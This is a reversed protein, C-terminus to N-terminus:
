KIKIIINPKILRYYIYIISFIMCLLMIFLGLIILGYM